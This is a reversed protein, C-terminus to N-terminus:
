YWNYFTKNNKSCHTIEMTSEPPFPESFCFFFVSLYQRICFFCRLLAFSGQCWMIITKLWTLNKQLSNKRFLSFFWISPQSAVSIETTKGTPVKWISEYVARGRGTKQWFGTKVWRRTRIWPALPVFNGNRHLLRRRLVGAPFCDFILYLFECFM